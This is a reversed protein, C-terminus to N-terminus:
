TGPSGDDRVVFATLVAGALLALVVLVVRVSSRAV